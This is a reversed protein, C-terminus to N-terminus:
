DGASGCSFAPLSWWKGFDPANRWATVSLVNFLVNSEYISSMSWVNNDSVKSKQEQAFGPTDTDPPMSVCVKVNFPLLEMHLAQAFGIVAFKSASYATYGYLGVLGAISSVLIIVGDKRKKMLPVLAQCCNVSGMLNIDLMRRFESVPTEEFRSAISTGACLMLLHIPGAEEEADTVMQEVLSVDSTVDMSFAQVKQRSNSPLHKLLSMKAGDLTEQDRAVITVSAGLSLCYEAASLGIGKSGGTILVHKGILSPKKRLIVSKFYYGSAIFIVLSLCVTLIM